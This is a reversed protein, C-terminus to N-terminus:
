VVDSRSVSIRASQHHERALSVVSRILAPWGLSLSPKSVPLRVRLVTALVLMGGSAMWYIARWGLRAGIFGSLTRSLLIGILLGGLVTGAVRGRQRAPALHAAFPIIVHVTAGTLGMAASAVCLWVFNRSSAVLALCIASVVLMFVILSRRERIDGMPVIAFMGGAVGLQTVM